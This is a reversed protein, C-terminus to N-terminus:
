RFFRFFCRMEAEKRRNRIEGSFLSIFNQKDAATGTPVAAVIRKRKGEGAATDDGMPVVRSGGGGFFIAKSDPSEKFHFGLFLKKKRFGFNSHATNVRESKNDSAKGSLLSGPM